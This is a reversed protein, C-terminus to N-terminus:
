SDRTLYLGLFGLVVAGLCIYVTTMDKIELFGIHLKLKNNLFFAAGVIIALYSIFKIIGKM